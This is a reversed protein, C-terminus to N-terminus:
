PQASRREKLNPYIQMIEHVRAVFEERSSWPAEFPPYPGFLSRAIFEEVHREGWYQFADMVGTHLHHAKLWSLAPGPGAGSTERGYRYVFSLEAQTLAFEDVAKVRYVLGSGAERLRSVEIPISLVLLGSSNLWTQRSVLPSNSWRAVPMNRDFLAWMSELDPM